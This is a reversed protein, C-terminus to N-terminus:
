HIPKEGAPRFVEFKIADHLRFCTKTLQLECFSGFNFAFTPIFTNRKLSARSHLIASM